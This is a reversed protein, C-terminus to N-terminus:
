RTSTARSLFPIAAVGSPDGVSSEEIPSHLGSPRRAFAFSVTAVAIGGGTVGTAPDLGPISGPWNPKIRFVATPESNCKQRRRNEIAPQMM